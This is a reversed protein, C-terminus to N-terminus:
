WSGSRLVHWHSQTLSRHQLYGEQARFARVCITAARALGLIVAVPLTDQVFSAKRPNRHISLAMAGAAGFCLAYMLAATSSQILAGAVSAVSCLLSPVAVALGWFKAHELYRRAHLCGHLPRVM